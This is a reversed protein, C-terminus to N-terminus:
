VHNKIRYVRKPQASLAVARVVPLLKLLTLGICEARRSESSWRCVRGACVEGCPPVIECLRLFRKVHQRYVRSPFEVSVAVVDLAPEIVHKFLIGCVVQESKLGCVCLPVALKM